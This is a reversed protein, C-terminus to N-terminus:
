ETIISSKSSDQVNQKEQEAKQQLLKGLAIRNEKDFRHVVEDFSSTGPIITTVICEFGGDGTDLTVTPVFVDDRSTYNVFAQLRDTDPKGLWDIKNM